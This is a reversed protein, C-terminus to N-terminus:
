HFSTKLASLRQSQPDAESEKSKSQLLIYQVEPLVTIPDSNYFIYTYRVTNSTSDSQAVFPLPMLPPPAVVSDTKYVRNVSTSSSESDLPYDISSYSSSRSLSSPSEDDFLDESKSHPLSTQQQQFFGYPFNFFAAAM